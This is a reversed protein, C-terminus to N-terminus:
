VFREIGEQSATPAADRDPLLVNNGTIYICRTVCGGGPFLATPSDAMIVRFSLKVLRNCLVTMHNM